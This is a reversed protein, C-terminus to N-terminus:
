SYLLKEMDNKNVKNFLGCRGLVYVIGTDIYAEQIEDEGYQSELYDVLDNVGVVTDKLKKEYTFALACKLKERGKDATSGQFSELVMNAMKILIQEDFEEGNKNTPIGIESLLSNMSGVTTNMGEVNSVVAEMKEIIEDYKKNQNDLTRKLDDTLATSKCTTETLKDVSSSVKEKIENTSREGTISMWIAIVSLVISTVTSAFSVQGVFVSNDATKVTLALIMLVISAILVIMTTRHAVAEDVRKQCCDESDKGKYCKYEKRFCMSLRTSSYLYYM